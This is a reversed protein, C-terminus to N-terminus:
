LSWCKRSSNWPTTGERNFLHKAYALNDQIDELDLGLKEAEAGHYRKNIQMLGTDDPDVKGRVVDGNKEHMLTSECKAIRVMIPNDGFVTNIEQIIREETWNIRVEILITKPEQPLEEANTYVVPISPTTVVLVFIYCIIFLTGYFSRNSEKQFRGTRKNRNM